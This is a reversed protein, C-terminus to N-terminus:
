LREVLTTGHAAHASSLRPDQNIEPEQEDLCSAHVFTPLIDEGGHNSVEFVLAHTGRPM